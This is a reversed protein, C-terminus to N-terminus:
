YLFCQCTKGTLDSLYMYMHVYMCVYMCKEDGGKDLLELNRIRRTMLTGVGGM